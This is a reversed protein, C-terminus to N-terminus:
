WLQGRRTHSAEGQGRARARAPATVAKLQPGGELWEVARCVGDVGRGVHGDPARVRVPAQEELQGLGPDGLGRQAEVEDDIGGGALGARRGVREVELEAEDRGGVEAIDEEGELDVAEGAIRRGRVGAERPDHPLHVGHQRHRAQLEEEGVAHARERVQAFGCVLLGNALDLAGAGLQTYVWKTPM